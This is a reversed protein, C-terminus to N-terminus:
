HTMFYTILNAGLRYAVASEYHVSGPRPKALWGGAIDVPSYILKYRGGDKIGYLLPQSLNGYKKRATQSFGCNSFKFPGKVLLPDNDPVRTLKKGPFLRLAARRMSDDFENMGLSNNVLIFGGNDLYKRLKQIEEGNFKFSGIGSLYLFPYDELKSKLPDVFVPEFKAAINVNKALYRMFRTEAGPDSNWIGNTRLQAFTVKDQGAKQDKASYAEGAAYARANEYWGVAYAALNVGIEIASRRKLYQAKSILSPYVNDWGGGLGYPSIVAALRSGIYVGDLTPEIDRKNNTNVSNVLRVQRFVPHDPALRKVPSEPLIKHMESLAARYFYPSGVVSDFWIMGGDMLYKRLKAREAPTFKISRGGSFFLVPIESPSASFTALDVTQVKYELRMYNKVFRLLRQCDGPVMNWDFVRSTLGNQWKYDLHKGWIVKGILVTPSPPRKKESRRLPTVPLPLPPFAEGGQRRQAKARPPKGVPRLYDDEGAQVLGGVIASLLATFILKKM